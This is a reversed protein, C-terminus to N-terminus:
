CKPMQFHGTAKVGWYCLEAWRPKMGANIFLSKLDKDLSERYSLDLLCARLGRYGSDHYLSPIKTHDNDKIPGSAGDWVMGPHITWIGNQTEILPGGHPHGDYDYPRHFIFPPYETDSVFIFTETVVYKGYLRLEHQSELDACAGPQDVWCAM